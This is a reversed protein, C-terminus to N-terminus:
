PEAEGGQPQLRGERLRLTRDALAAADARHTVLIVSTGRERCLARLETLIVGAHADDLNGTPEDALVLPPANLVARCYAVRQQEGGSLQPPYHDSRHAVGLREMLVRAAALAEARPRGVYRAALLVNELATLGAILLYSQFVYGISRGRVPCQARRSLRSVCVDDLWIEGADPPELLGILNLLTTKGCGSPGAVAVFEGAKVEVDVGHLVPVPRGDPGRFTKSLGRARVVM